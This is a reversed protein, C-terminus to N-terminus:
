NAEVTASTEVAWYGGNYGQKVIMFSRGALNGSGLIQQGDTFNAAPHCVHWIGRVTGRLSANSADVVWLRSMTWTGDLPSPGALVGGMPAYFGSGNNAAIVTAVFAFDGKKVFPLSDGTGKANRAIFHGLQAQTMENGAASPWPGTIIGDGQEFGATQTTNEGSKAIIIVSGSDGGTGYLSYFEGFQCYYYNGTTDGSALWLHVTYADAAIIWVRPTADNSVSKRAVLRGYTNVQQPLPFQGLGAGVNSFASGSPMISSMTVWGTWEAEKSTNSANDNVFLTFGSGSAQKYCGYVSASNPFPKSWGAAPRNTYGNVLCADLISILSGTIGTIAGPGGPDSSTYITFATNPM